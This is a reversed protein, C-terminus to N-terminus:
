TSSWASIASTFYSAPTRHSAPQIRYSQCRCSLKLRPFIAAPCGCSERIVLSMPFTQHSEGPTTASLVTRVASMAMERVPQRSRDVATLHVRVGNHRRLQGRRCGAAGAPGVVPAGPARWRTCIPAPSSRRRITGLLSCNCRRRTDVRAPSRGIPSQGMRCGRQAPRQSGAKSECIPAQCTRVSSWPWRSTDTPPWWTSWWRAHGRRWTAALRRWGPYRPLPTSSSLRSVSSASARRGNRVSASAPWSSATPRATSSTMSSRAEMAPDGHANAMLVAYGRSGAEAQVQLAYDAFFPNSIDSVVLALMRTSGSRLARASLNPRDGLVEIARRVRAATAAAVPNPGDNMVYSVVATSVGAYRAVDARTVPRRVQRGHAEAM